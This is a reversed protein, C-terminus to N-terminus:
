KGSRCKTEGDVRVSTPCQYYIITHSWNSFAIHQIEDRGDLACRCVDFPYGFLRVSTWAVESLSMMLSGSSSEFWLAFHVQNTCTLWYASFLLCWRLLIFASNILLHHDSLEGTRSILESRIRRSSVTLRGMLEFLPWDQSRSLSTATFPHDSSHMQSGRNWRSLKSTLSQESALFFPLFEGLRQYM